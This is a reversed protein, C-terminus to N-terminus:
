QHPYTLQKPDHFPSIINEIFYAYNECFLFCAKYLDIIGGNIATNKKLYLFFIGLVKVIV